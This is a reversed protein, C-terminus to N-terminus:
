RLRVGGSQTIQTGTADPAFEMPVEVTLGCGTLTWTEWWPQKGPPANPPADPPPTGDRRGAHEFDARAVELAPCNTAVRGAGIRAFTLADRQLTPDAHTTGLLGTRIEPQGQINATFFLNVTTAPGCGSVPFEEKWAGANPTGDPAFGLTRMPIVRSTPSDLTPCRPLITPPITAIARMVLERHAPTAIYAKFRDNDTPQAQAHPAVALTALLLTTKIM